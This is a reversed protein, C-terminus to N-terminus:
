RRLYRDLPMWVANEYGNESDEKKPLGFRDDFSRFMRNFEREVNLLDRVPNFRIIAM